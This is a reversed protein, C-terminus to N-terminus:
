KISELLWKSDKQGTNFTNQPLENKKIKQFFLLPDGRQVNLKQM